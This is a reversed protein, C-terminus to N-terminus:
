SKAINSWYPMGEKTTEPNFGKWIFTWWDEVNNLISLQEKVTNPCGCEMYDEHLIHYKMNKIFKTKIKLDKLKKEFEPKFVITPM